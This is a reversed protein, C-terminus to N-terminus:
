IGSNLSSSKIIGMDAIPSAHLERPLGEMPEGPNPPIVMTVGAGKLLKGAVVMTGIEAGSLNIRDYQRKVEGNEDFARLAGKITGSPNDASQPDVSLYYNSTGKENRWWIVDGGQVEKLDLSPLEKVANAVDVVNAGGGPLVEMHFPRTIAEPHEKVLRKVTDFIDSQPQQDPQPTLGDGGQAEDMINEINDYEWM